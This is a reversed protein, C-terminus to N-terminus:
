PSTAMVDSLWTAVTRLVDPDVPRRLQAGYGGLGARPHTRLLHTLTGPTHGTFPGGVLERMREVDDFDVQVDNRGTLALVPCTIRALDGTPDYHMYERFWRAPLRQAGIRVVDSGSERLTRRAREQRRLFWRAGLRQIGTLTAAIRDSQLRMVEEGPRAAAALLVAAALPASSSALRIAITAGVSHGVVALRSRDIEARDGLWALVFAADSTETDFGTLLYDGESVGVGRKDYRLTAIGQEVLADALANAVNLAQGRMNSNRDLPGSGSLVLAAPAREVGDPLVLSGALRTGDQARIEVESVM